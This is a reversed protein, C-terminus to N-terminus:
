FGDVFRRFISSCSNASGRGRWSSSSSSGRENKFFGGCYYTRVTTRLFFCFVFCSFFCFTSTDCEELRASPICVRVYFVFVVVATTTSTYVPVCVAFWVGCVSEGYTTNMGYRLFIGLFFPRRLFILLTCLTRHPTYPRLLASLLLSFPPLSLGSLCAAALEVVVM